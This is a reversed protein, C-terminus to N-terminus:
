SIQQHTRCEDVRRNGDTFAGINDATSLDIEHQLEAFSFPKCLLHQIGQRRADEAMLDTMFGSIMICRPQWRSTSFFERHARIGDIGPLVYDLVILDPTFTKLMEM